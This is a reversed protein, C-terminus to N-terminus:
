FRISFGWSPRSRSPECYRSSNSRYSERYDSRCGENQYHSRSSPYQTVWRGVPRGCQDYGYIQYVAFIPDGCSTYGVVRRNSGHDAKASQIPVLSFAAVAMVLMLIKKM